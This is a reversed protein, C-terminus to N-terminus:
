RDVDDGQEEHFVAQQSKRRAAVPVPHATKRMARPIRAWNEGPTKLETQAIASVGEM